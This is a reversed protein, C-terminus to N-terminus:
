DAQTTILGILCLCMYTLSWMEGEGRRHSFDTCVDIPTEMSRDTKVTHIDTFAYM